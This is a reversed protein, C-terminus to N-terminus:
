IRICCICLAFSGHVHQYQVQQSENKEKCDDCTSFIEHSFSSCVCAHRGKMENNRMTRRVDITWVREGGSNMEHSKIQAEFDLHSHCVIALILFTFCFLVFDIRKKKNERKTWKASNIRAVNSKLDYPFILKERSKFRLVEIFLSIRAYNIFPIPRTLFFM